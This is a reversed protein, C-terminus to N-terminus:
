HHPDMAHLTQKEKPKVLFSDEEAGKPAVFVHPPECVGIGVKGNETALSSGGHIIHAARELLHALVPM